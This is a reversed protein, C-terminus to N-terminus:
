PQPASSSCGSMGGDADDAAAVEEVRPQEGDVTGRLASSRAPQRCRVGGRRPNGMWGGDGGSEPARGTLRGWPAAISPRM